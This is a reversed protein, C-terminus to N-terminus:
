QEVGWVLSNYYEGRYKVFETSTSGGRVTSDLVQEITSVGQSGLHTELTEGRGRDFVEKQRENMDSYSLKRPKRKEMERRYDGPSEAFKSGSIEYENVSVRADDIEIRYNTGDASVVDDSELSLRRLELKNLGIRSQEDSLSRQERAEANNVAIRVMSREWESLSDLSEDAPDATPRVALAQGDVVEQGLNKSSIQYVTGNFSLFKTANALNNRGASFPAFGYTTATNGSTVEGAISEQEATLESQSILSPILTFVVRNQPSRFRSSEGQEGDDPKVAGAAGSGIVGAAISSSAIKLLKRREIDSVKKM